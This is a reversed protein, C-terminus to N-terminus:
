LGMLKDLVYMELAEYDRAARLREVQAEDVSRAVDVLRLFMARSNALHKTQDAPKTSRM